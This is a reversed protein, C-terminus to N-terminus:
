VTMRYQIYQFELWKLQSPTRFREGMLVPQELDLIVAKTGDGLDLV